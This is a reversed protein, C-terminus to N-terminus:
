IAALFGARDPGLALEPPRNDRDQYVAMVRGIVDPDNMLSDPPQLLNFMRLFARLVVPDVRMAPLLGDRLLSRVFESPDVFPEAGDAQGDPVAPKVPTSDVAAAGTSSAGVASAPAANDAAASDAAARALRDQAVSARYWPTIESATGAEFAVARARHADISGAGHEDLLDVLMQSQVLALSCGRGYLPNTATHADGVAHFGLVLPAGDTRAPDASEAPLDASTSAPPAAGDVSPAADALEGSFIRRRNILGGMVEVDTIPESRGDVYPATAPLATAASLFTDPDLLLKRLEADHTGVAFTISFTRNDGPFVGYKLYGVDGGIVGSLPPLAAGDVLRFFRSLYIIGTDDDTEEIQVGIQALLGPVDSRRGGAGVVVDAEVASGDALAVGTVVPPGCSRTTPATILAVVPTGHLLTVNGESLAIRRLVWEFTTRRCAMGVLDDDGPEPTLVMGEPAMDTFRMETAGADLLAALVDPHRDRLLNRLRALFAHSHRVQPAGRRDWEFAGHADAPLPTDDREVITVQHGSRAACLATGLGGVGAGIIVVRAVHM